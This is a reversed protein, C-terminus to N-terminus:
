LCETPLEGFLNVISSSDDYETILNDGNECDEDSLDHFDQPINLEETMYPEKHLHAWRKTVDSNVAKRFIMCHISPLKEYLIRSFGMLGLTYRWNKYIKANAGVHKSDPTVVALIGEYNLLSYALSCCKLRQASSPLYELLLSFVILDFSQRKLEDIVNDCVNFEDGIKVNLFDCKFVDPTAPSLDISTVNMYECTSFPNYCSGVDLTNIKNIDEYEEHVNYPIQLKDCINIEKLRASKLGGNFYYNHSHRQIWQIRCRSEADTAIPWHNTALNRMAEAYKELLDKQSCHLNWAQDPGHRAASRRLELHVNKVIGSCRLHEETM